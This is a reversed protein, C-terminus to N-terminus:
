LGDSDPKSAIVTILDPLADAIALAGILEDQALQILKPDDRNGLTGNVYLKVWDLRGTLARM